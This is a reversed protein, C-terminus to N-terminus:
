WDVGFAGVIHEVKLTLGGDELRIEVVDFRSRSSTLRRETLFGRAALIIQRRKRADVAERPLGCRSSQRFKVEVFVIREGTRAIIDIEKRRFRYNLALIVYGRMRLFSAAVSEALRGLEM